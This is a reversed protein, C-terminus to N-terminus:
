TVFTPRIGDVRHGTALDVAVHDRDATITTSGTATITGGTPKNAGIAIGGAAADDVVVTYSCAMMTTNTGTACTAAKATGDFDLELQPSGTIDVAESFTVTAEVADGIGYTANTPTSTLAVSSVSPPPQGDAVGFDHRQQVLVPRPRDM